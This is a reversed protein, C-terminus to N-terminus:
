YRFNTFHIIAYPKSRDIRRFWEKWDEYLLGDNEAIKRTRVYRYIDEEETLKVKSFREGTIQAMSNLYVQQLGIGDERTLRAIERVTSGKGYPKGVWQRVSLVAEGAMIKNFRQQWLEYNGRITHLKKCFCPMGNIAAMMKPAFGTEEGARTHTAPFTKSLMLVYTKLKKM